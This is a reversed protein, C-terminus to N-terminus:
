LKIKEVVTGLGTQNAKIKM